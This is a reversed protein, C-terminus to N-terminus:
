RLLPLRDRSPRFPYRLFPSRLFEEQKRWAAAKADLVGGRGGSRRNPAGGGAPRRGLQRAQGSLVRRLKDAAASPRKPVKWSSEVKKNKEKKKKEKERKEREDGEWGM